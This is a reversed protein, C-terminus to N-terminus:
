CLGSFLLCKPCWTVVTANLYVTNLLPHSCEQIQQKQESVNPNPTRATCLTARPLKLPTHGHPSCYHLELTQQVWLETEQRAVLTKTSLKECHVPRRSHTPQALISPLSVFLYARRKFSADKCSLLDQWSLKGPSPEKAFARSTSADSPVWATQLAGIRTVWNSKQKYVKPMVAQRYTLLLVWDFPLSVM